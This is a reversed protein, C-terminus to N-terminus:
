KALLKFAVASMATVGTTLTPEPLPAFRSSHLSPLSEGTRECEAAKAPDVAGLRFQCTPVKDATLGFESFDEGGMEPPITKVRDASIWDTM